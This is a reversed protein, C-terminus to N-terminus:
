NISHTTVVKGSVIVSLGLATALKNTPVFLAGNLTSVDAGLDLQQGDMMAERGGFPIYVEHEGYTFTIGHPGQTYSTELSQVLDAAGVYLEGNKEFPAVQKVSPEGTSADLFLKANKPGHTFDFMHNLAGARADYSQDGIRGLSWNDEIFRLISSQDTISHDVYNHRAYPSIVLLPLRPGYGARDLYTGQAPTGANGPAVLADALPDNSANVIPGMVHDYWGDSDDWSLIVATSSWTPLTELHNITQTIFQQEDLPDSYGAHGDQYAPAKLFSVSPMNGSDTAAWFDSMGYQHNAQDQKGIMATSTPPLHNPNATSKYYEFPEHHPIYDTSQIGGLNTHSLGSKFGGEFWGWSIGKANLLDGVNRSSMVVTNGKSTNDYFPDVDSYLTNNTNLKGKIIMGTSDAQLQTPSSVTVNGSYAVAGHTQGSVLNLAGPTSPGFTTGFSNDSMAYHQAYNWLATVTNGDYYDMVVNPSQNKIPWSGAGTNQVFKDMLGGNFARQEATYDHDMDDTQAQTRDLRTPNALNPNATLLDDTLGNVAPTGPAAHFTPEGAPNTASPYTGFYHDFSVNEGFIVVVHQIPTNTAPLHMVIRSAQHKSNQAIPTSKDAFAVVSTSMAVVVMASASLKVRKSTPKM